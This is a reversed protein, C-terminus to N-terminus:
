IAESEQKELKRIMASGLRICPREILRYFLTALLASTVSVLIFYAVCNINSMKFLDALGIANFFSIVASHILYISFSLTGFWITLRNVILGVPFHALLLVLVAFLAGAILHHPIQWRPYLFLIALIIFSPTAVHLMKRSGHDSNITHYLLIGIIFVPLQGFFNFYSFSDVLYRQDPPYHFIIPVCKKNVVFLALSAVLIFITRKLSGFYILILPLVVYFTMEVAISWGGPVVSNITEPHFGHVFLAMAPLFWWEIGNPAWYTPGFGNIASFSLIAIWFMPGIRFLRRIYFNRVPNIELSNRANWSLCLTLASAIYFLQVGRAGEEMFWILAKNTAAVSQSSHVLVVALVALGRTADIYALNRIPSM